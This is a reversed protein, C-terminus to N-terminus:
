KNKVTGIVGRREPVDALTLFAKWIRFTDRSWGCGVKILYIRFWGFKIMPLRIWIVPDLSTLYYSRGIYWRCDRLFEVKRFTGGNTVYTYELYGYQANATLRTTKALYHALPIYLVALLCLLAVVMWVSDLESVASFLLVVLLLVFWTSQTVGRRDYPMTEELKEHIAAYASMGPCAAEVCDRCYLNDDWLREAAQFDLAQLCKNCCKKEHGQM